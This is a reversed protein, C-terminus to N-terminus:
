TVTRSTRFPQKAVLVHWFVTLGASRAAARGCARYSYGGGEVAAGVESEEIQDIQRYQAVGGRSDDAETREREGERGLRFMQLM